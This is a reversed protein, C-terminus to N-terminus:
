GTRLPDDVIRDVGRDVGGHLGALRGIVDLNQPLPRRLQLLEVPLEAFELGLEGHLLPNAVDHTIGGSRTGAHYQAMETGGIECASVTVGERGSTMERVGDVRQPSRGVADIPLEVVARRQTAIERPLLREVTAVGGDFLLRAEVRPDALLERYDKYAKADASWSMRASPVSPPRPRATISRWTCCRARRTSSRRSTERRVAPRTDM